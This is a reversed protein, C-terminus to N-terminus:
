WEKQEFDVLHVLEDAENEVMHKKELIEGEDKFDAL